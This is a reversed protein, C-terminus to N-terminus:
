EIDHRAFIEAPTKRLIKFLPLLGVIINFGYIILIAM